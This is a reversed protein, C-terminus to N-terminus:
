EDVIEGADYNVTYDSSAWGKKAEERAKEIIEEDSLNECEEDDIEIYVCGEIPFEVFRSM